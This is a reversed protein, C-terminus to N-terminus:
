SYFWGFNASTRAVDTIDIKRDENIDAHPNWKPHGPYSGFAGSVRAVDQIDIKGDHNVDGPFYPNMLPYRDVNGTSIVCQNDAIGDGNNDVCTFNSWFNGAYGNDWSNVGQSPPQHYVHQTNNIFSNFYFTCNQVNSQLWIGQINNRISNRTFKSNSAYAKIGIANNMITNETITAKEGYVSIGEAFHHNRITFGSLLVSRGTINIGPSAPDGLGLDIITTSSSESVIELYDKDVILQEYYTGAAVHIVDGDSADAIAQNISPYQSPVNLIRCSVLEIAAWRAELKRDIDCLDSRGFAIKYYQGPTLGSITVSRYYWVGSNHGKAYELIKTANVIYGSLDPRLLYAALYKRESYPTTDNYCFYGKVQITGTPPVILKEQYCAFFDYVREFAGPYGFTNVMIGEGYPSSIQAINVYHGTPITGKIWSTVNMDIPFGSAISVLFLIYVLLLVAVKKVANADM